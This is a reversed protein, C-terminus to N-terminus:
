QDVCAVDSDLVDTVSARKGCSRALNDDSLEQPKYVIDDM